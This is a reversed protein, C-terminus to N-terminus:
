RRIRYHYGYLDRTLGLGAYLHRAPVNDAMVQLAVSRAGQGKAWGFLGTLCQRAYGRQRAAADTMVSEIILLDDQLVGYALSVIEGDARISAFGCPLRIQGVISRYSAVGEPDAGSLRARAALWDEDAAVRISVKGADAAAGELSGFLTRTPADLAYGRAALAADIEDAISPIRFIVPKGEGRYFREVEDILADSAEADSSLPNASNARRTPGGSNRLAWGRMVMEQVAPWATLCAGEVRWNLEESSM